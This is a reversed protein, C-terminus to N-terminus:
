PSIGAEELRHLFFADIENTVRDSASVKPIDHSAPLTFARRAERGVEGGWDDRDDHHAGLLPLTSVIQLTRLPVNPSHRLQDPRDCKM